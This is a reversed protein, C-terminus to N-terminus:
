PQDKHMLGIDNLHMECVCVYCMFRCMAWECVPLLYVKVYCVHLACACICGHVCFCTLCMSSLPVFPLCLECM